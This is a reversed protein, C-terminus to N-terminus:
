ANPVSRELMSKLKERARKLRGSVSSQSICLSDAIEVTTMGQYYHLLIVERWKISLRMVALVLSEEEEEFPTCAEPLDEATVRRDHWKFWGSRRIDRCTNVAIKMLWSRESSEGRFLHLSRYAKLFTDQVADEALTQDKLYLYCTRLLASQHEQVLKEFYRDMEAANDPGKVNSM